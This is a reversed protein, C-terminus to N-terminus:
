AEGLWRDDEGPARPAQAYRFIQGGFRILRGVAERARAEIVLGERKHEPAKHELKRVRRRLEFGLVVEGDAEAM